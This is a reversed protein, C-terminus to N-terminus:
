PTAPEVVADPYLADLLELTAKGTRPGFGALLLDDMAILRKSAGAPTQALGPRDWLKEAGGVSELGERYCLIVDPKAAVVAEANMEKYGNLGALALPAGTLQVMAAAASDDGMLMTVGPRLYIILVRPGPKGALTAKRAEVQKLDADMAAVLAEAKEDAALTKGLARIRERAGDVGHTDPLRLVKAGTQELLNISPNSMARGRGVILSPKMALVAEANIQHGTGITAVQNAAEPYISSDDRGVLQDGFGLAFLTETTAADLSVIRIEITDAALPLATALLLLGAVATSRM